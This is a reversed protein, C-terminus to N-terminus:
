SYTSRTHCVPIKMSEVDNAFIILQKAPPHTPPDPELFIDVWEAIFSLYIASHRADKFDATAPDIYLYSDLAM